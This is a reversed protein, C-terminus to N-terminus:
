GGVIRALEASWAQLAARMEAAYTHQDYVRALGVNGTASSWNPWRTPFRCVPSGRKADHAASRAVGM